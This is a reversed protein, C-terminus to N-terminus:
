EDIHNLSDNVIDVVAEHIEDLTEKSIETKKPKGDILEVIDEIEYDGELFYDNDLAMDAPTGSNATVYEYSVTMDFVRKKLKGKADRSTHVFDRIEIRNTETQPDDNNNM